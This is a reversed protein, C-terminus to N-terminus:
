NNDTPTFTYFDRGWVLRVDDVGNPFQWRLLDVALQGYDLPISNIRLLQVMGRLHHVLENISDATGLMTFRRVVPNEPKVDEKNILRRLSKGLRLGSQHMRHSQSQQHMAFLTLCHHAAVEAFTPDDDRPDRVLEAATTFELIDLVSGPVKGLGRRLRALASVETARNKLYGNQLRSIRSNVLERLTGSLNKNETVTV